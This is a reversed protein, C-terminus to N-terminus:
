LPTDDPEGCEESQEPRAIQQAAQREQCERRFAEAINFATYVLQRPTTVACPRQFTLPVLHCLLRLAIADLSLECPDAEIVTAYVEAM